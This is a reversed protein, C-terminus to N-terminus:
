KRKAGSKILAAVRAKCRALYAKRRRRKIIKNHQQGMIFWSETKNIKVTKVITQTNVNKYHLGTLTKKL